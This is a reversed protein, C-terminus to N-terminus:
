PTEKWILCTYNGSVGYGVPIDTPVPTQGPLNPNSGSYARTCGGSIVSDKEDM